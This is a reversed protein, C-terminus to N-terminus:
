QTVAEATEKAIREAEKKDTIFKLIGEFEDATVQKGHPLKAEDAIEDSLPMTSEAKPKVPKAKIERAREAPVVGLLVAAELIENYREPEHEAIYGLSEKPNTQVTTFRQKLTQYDYRSRLYLERQSVTQRQVPRVDFSPAIHGDFAALEKMERYAVPNTKMLDNALKSSSNKGFYKAVQEPSHKRTREVELPDQTKAPAEVRRSGGWYIPEPTPYKMYLNRQNLILFSRLV